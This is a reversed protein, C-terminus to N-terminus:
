AFRCKQAIQELFIGLLSMVIAVTLTGRCSLIHMSANPIKLICIELVGVELRPCCGYHSTILQRNELLLRDQDVARTKFINFISLQFGRQCSDVSEEDTEQKTAALLSGLLHYLTNTYAVVAFEFPM